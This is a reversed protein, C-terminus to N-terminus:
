PKIVVAPKRGRRAISNKEMKSWFTPPITARSKTVKRAKLLM